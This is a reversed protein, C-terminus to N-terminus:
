DIYRFEASAFLSQCLAALTAQGRERLSTPAVFNQIFASAAAKEGTTPPRGYTLLFAQEVKTTSSSSSQSIRQALAESQQIVFANNLMYLSQNATNSSERTGIISSSDAFDFVDLSRPEEDRVIPMYVSRFKANEMDLPNQVRGGPGRQGGPQGGPRGTQGNPRRGPFRRQGNGQFQGQPRGQQPRGSQQRNGQRFRGGQQNGGNFQPRGNGTSRDGQQGNGPRAGGM